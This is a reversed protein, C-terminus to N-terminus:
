CSCNTTAPVVVKGGRDLRRRNRGLNYEDEVNFRYLFTPQAAALARRIALRHVDANYFVDNLLQAM